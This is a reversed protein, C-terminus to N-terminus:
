RKNFVSRFMQLLSTARGRDMPQEAGSAYRQQMKDIWGLATSPELRHTYDPDLFAYRINGTSDILYCAPLPIGNSDDGNRAQLDVGYAKMIPLM